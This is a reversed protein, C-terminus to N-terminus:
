VKYKLLDPPFWSVVELSFDFKIAFSNGLDIAGVHAVDFKVCLSIPIVFMDLWILEDDILWVFEKKAVV